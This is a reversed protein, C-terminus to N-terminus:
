RTRPGRVLDAGGPEDGMSPAASGHGRRPERMGALSALTVVGAVAAATLIAMEIGLRDAVLGSGLAGVAYGLDRWFRYVGLAGGRWGPGAADSVLALLTPYVMATGLGVVVAAALWGIYGGALTFGWLGLAQLGMGGVILPKRGWRDSLPGFGVQTIGWVAPYAAVVVGIRDVGLSATALFLPLLGWLLGDKLNTVLGALSGLSLTRDRWTTRAAVELFGPEPAVQDVEAEQHAWAHTERTMLALGLGIVALGLGLYFPEPRLGYRAALLGTVLAIVALGSYGAFENLGLALGREDADALDVKMIVTMSWALAQNVGLLVNAFLVWGWSPAWLLILPVPLAVLWGLILLTRRGFRDALHGAGLNMVAKTAGFTAIFATAAAASAIGFEAEALLPLVTRELGVMGGVFANTLVLLSFHPLNARIGHPRHPAPRGVTALGGIHYKLGLPARVLGSGEQGASAFM